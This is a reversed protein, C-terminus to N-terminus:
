KAIKFDECICRNNDSKCILKNKVIHNRAGIQNLVTFVNKQALNYIKEIDKSNISKRKIVESIFTAFFIDGCGNTEFEPFAETKYAYEKNNFLITAGRKGKTIILIYINISNKFKEFTIDLRKLIFNLTEEKISVM